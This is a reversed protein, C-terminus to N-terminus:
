NICSPFPNKYRYKDDLNEKLYQGQTIWKFNVQIRM